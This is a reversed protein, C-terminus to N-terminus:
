RAAGQRLSPLPKMGAAPMEGAEAPPRGYPYRHRPTMHQNRRWFELMEEPALGYCNANRVLWPWGALRAERIIEDAEKLTM